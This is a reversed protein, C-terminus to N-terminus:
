WDTGDYDGDGDDMELMFGVVGVAGVGVCGVEEGSVVAEGKVM